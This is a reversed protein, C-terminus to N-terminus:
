LMEFTDSSTREIVGDWTLHKLSGYVSNANEGVVETVEDISMEGDASELTELIQAKIAFLGSIQDPSIEEANTPIEYDLQRVDGTDGSHHIECYVNNETEAYLTFHGYKGCEKYLKM